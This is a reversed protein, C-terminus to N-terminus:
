AVAETISQGKDIAIKGSLLKPLLADRISSLIDTQEELNRIEQDIRGAIDTYAKLVKSDPKIIKLAKLDKQNISGFVTGESDFNNFYRELRQMSYFTYAECGAKHRLAAIGRGICCDATSKNVDGVPARVSLLTDGNKALRKPTTCYVRNTPYRWGFDRRGQFFPMGEGNENYTDGPPSQGMTVDFENGISSEKWGSPILGLESDELEDQFLAATAVLQQRQEPPSAELFADLEADTKGSIACMAAREPDQHNQKAQIKAKVPEFDVFWSKFIAQAIHELTQNIQCNLKLKDDLAKLVSVIEEQEGRSPLPIKIKKASSVNFHQQVAGVLHSSVQHAAVSNMFYSLYHASLKKDDVRAIVVDSCNAKEITEPIVCATGPKGTRVIVVDGPVLASKKLKKHFEKSIYRVDDWDINYPRINKSRFFPIGSDVYEQTMSGVFGVTLDEVLDSLQVLPWDSM